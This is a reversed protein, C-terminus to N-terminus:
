LRPRPRVSVNNGEAGSENGTMVSRIQRSDQDLEQVVHQLAVREQQVRFWNRVADMGPRDNLMALEEAVVDMVHVGQAMLWELSQPRNALVVPRIMWRVDESWCRGDSLRNIRDAREIAGQELADFMAHSLGRSPHNPHDGNELTGPILRELLADLPTEGQRNRHGQCAEKVADSTDFPVQLAAGQQLVCDVSPLAEVGQANVSRVADVMHQGLLHAVRTSTQNMSLSLGHQVILHRVMDLRGAEAARDIALGNDSRPDAGLAVLTDFLTRQGSYAAAGLMLGVTSPSRRQNMDAQLSAGQDVLWHALRVVEDLPAPVENPEGAPRSALWLLATTAMEADIPVHLDEALSALRQVQNWGPLGQREHQGLHARIMKRLAPAGVRADRLGHEVALFRVVNLDQNAVARELLGPRLRPDAGLTVLRRLATLDGERTPAVLVAARDRNIDLGSVRVLHEIVDWRTARYAADRLPARSTPAPRADQGATNTQESRPLLAREVVKNLLLGEDQHPDAGMAISNLFAAFTGDLAATALHKDKKQQLRSRPPSVSPM